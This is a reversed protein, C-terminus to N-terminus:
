GSASGLHSLHSWISILSELVKTLDHDTFVTNGEFRFQRVLVFLQSSLQDPDKAVDPSPLTPQQALCLTQWVIFFFSLSFVTVSLLSLSGAGGVGDATQFHQFGQDRNPTM